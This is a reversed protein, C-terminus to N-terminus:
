DNKAGAKIWATIAAAGAANTVANDAPMVGDPGGFWSLPTQATIGLVSSAPSSPDILKATVLGNYCDDKSSGCVFGSAKAGKSTSLNHCFTDSCHGPTGAALWNDYVDGFTGTAPPPGADASGSDKGADPAGGDTSGADAPPMSADPTGADEPAIMQGGPGVGHNPAGRVVWATVAAAATPDSSPADAPMRGALTSADGEPVNYWALPSKGPIGLASDSPDAADLLHADILGQYMTDATAGTTFGALGKSHCAACHGVTDPGFYLSYLDQWDLAGGDPTVVPVPASRQGGADGDDDDDGNPTVGDDDDGASSTSSTGSGSGAPVPAPRDPVVASSCAAAAVALLLSGLAALHTKM